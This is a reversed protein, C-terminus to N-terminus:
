LMSLLWKLLVLAAGVVALRSLALMFGCARIQAALSQRRNAHEVVWVLFDALEADDKFPDRFTSAMAMIDDILKEYPNARSM